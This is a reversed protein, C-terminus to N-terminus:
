IYDIQKTETDFTIIIPSNQYQYDENLSSANLFEVGNFHKQGYAWHIHGCVHIKPKVEMIKHFLDACGVQMNTITHDLMQYAPGHTILIDTDNPINAWKEALKEGRPLNFAWNYFEPQWPSGYFKIGDITIENDFLYIVGDDEYKKAIKNNKEFYFDHNGAIFIKYTFDTESFWELFDSIEYDLGVNSIDGAHILFDGSGLLNNNKDSKLYKHKGHTDSIFVIKKEM